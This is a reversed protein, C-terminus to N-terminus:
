CASEKGKKPKPLTDMSISMAAGRKKLTSDDMRATESFGEDASRSHCDDVVKLGRAILPTYACVSPLPALQEFYQDWLGAALERTILAGAQIEIFHLLLLGDMGLRHHWFDRLQNTSSCKSRDVAGLYQLARRERFYPFVLTIALYILSALTCLAVFLFWFWLILFLKENLMNIMLVCQVSHNHGATGVERKVFDCMTERPFFASDHMPKNSSLQGLVQLLLVSCDLLVALALKCV